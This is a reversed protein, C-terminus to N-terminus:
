YFCCMLSTYCSVFCDSIHLTYLMLHLPSLSSIDSLPQSEREVILLFRSRYNSITVSSQTTALVRDYLQLNSSEAGCNCFSKRTDNTEVTLSYLTYSELSIVKVRGLHVPPWHIITRSTRGDLKVTYMGEVMLYEDMSECIGSCETTTDMVTGRKIILRVGDRARVNLHCSKTYPSSSDRIYLTETVRVSECSCMELMSNTYKCSAGVCDDSTLSASQILETSTICSVYKGDTYSIMALAFVAAIVYSWLTM